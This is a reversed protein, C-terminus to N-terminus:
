QREIAVMKSLSESHSEDYGSSDSMLLGSSHRQVIIQQDGQYHLLGSTWQLLVQPQIDPIDVRESFGQLNNITVDLTTMQNHRAPITTWDAYPYQLM